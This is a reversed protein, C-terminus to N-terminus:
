LNYGVPKTFSVSIFGAARCADMVQVVDGWRVRATPHVKIGFAALKEKRVQEAKEPPLDKVSREVVVKRREFAEKLFRNLSETDALPTRLAGEEVVIPNEGGQDRPTVLVTMEAVPDLLDHEPGPGGINGPAEMELRLAMQGEVASPHYTFIFFTLLQFAMDLMPTIPLVVDTVPEGRRQSM